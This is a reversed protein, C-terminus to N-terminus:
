APMERVRLPRPWDLMISGKRDVTVHREGAANLPKAGLQKVFV